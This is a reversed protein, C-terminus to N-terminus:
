TIYGFVYTQNSKTKLLFFNELVDKNITDGSNIFIIFKSNCIEIGKNMAYYIGKDKEIIVKIQKNFQNTKLKKIIDGSIDTSDSDLILWEVENFSNVISIINKETHEFNKGSNKNVTIITLYM